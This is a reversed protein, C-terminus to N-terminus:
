VHARGIEFTVSQATASLTLLPASAGAPGTSGDRVKVITVTDTYGSITASITVSDTLMSSAAITRVNGSGVLSATGAIVSFTATGGLALSPEATLTLTAPEPSGVSPILVALSSSRLKLSKVSVSLLYEVRNLLAQAQLNMEGSSGGRALTSTELQPVADWGPTPTLNPM